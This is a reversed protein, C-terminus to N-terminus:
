PKVNDAYVGSPIGVVKKALYPYCITVQESKPPHSFPREIKENRDCHNIEYQHAQRTPPHSPRDYDSDNHNAKKPIIEAAHRSSRTSRIMPDPTRMLCAEHLVRTAGDNVRIMEVNPVSICRRVNRMPMRVAAKGVMTRKEQTVYRKTIGRRIPATNIQIDKVLRARGSKQYEDAM